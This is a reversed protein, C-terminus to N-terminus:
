RANWCHCFSGPRLLQPLSVANKEEEVHGDIAQIKRLLGGTGCWCFGVEAGDCDDKNHDPHTGKEEAILHLNVHLWPVVTFSCRVPNRRDQTIMHPPEAFGELM